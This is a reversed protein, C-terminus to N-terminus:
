IWEDAALAMPVFAWAIYSLVPSLEPKAFIHEALYPAFLWIVISFAEGLEEHDGRTLKGIFRALRKKSGRTV